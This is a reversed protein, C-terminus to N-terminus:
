KKTEEFWKALEERYTEQSVDRTTTTVSYSGGAGGGYMQFSQPTRKEAEQALENLRRTVYDWSEANM